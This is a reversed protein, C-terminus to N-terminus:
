FISYIISNYALINNLIKTKAKSIIKGHYFSDQLYEKRTANRRLLSLMAKRRWNDICSLKHPIKVM